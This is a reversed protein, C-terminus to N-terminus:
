FFYITSKSNEGKIVHCKVDCEWSQTQMEVYSCAACNVVSGSTSSAAANFTALLLVMLFLLIASMM